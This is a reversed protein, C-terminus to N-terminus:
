GKILTLPIVSLYWYIFERGAYYYEPEYLRFKMDQLNNYSRMNDRTTYTLVSTCGIKRAYKIRSKIMRTHLGRGRYEPKVAARLLLLSNEHELHEAMCFGAVKGSDWLIWCTTNKNIEFICEPFLDDHLTIITKIDNTKVLRM